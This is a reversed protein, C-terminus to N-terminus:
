QLQSCVAKSQVSLQHVAIKHFSPQIFSVCSYDGAHSTKLPELTLVLTTTNGVVDAQSTTVSLDAGDIENDDPDLWKM